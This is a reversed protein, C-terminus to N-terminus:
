VFHPFSPITYADSKPDSNQLNMGFNRSEEQVFPITTYTTHVDTQLVSPIREVRIQEM